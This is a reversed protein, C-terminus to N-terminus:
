IGTLSDLEGYNVSPDDVFYRDRELYFPGVKFTPLESVDVLGGWEVCEMGLDAWGYLIGDEIGTILWTLNGSFLKVIPRAGNYGANKLAKMQDKTILTMVINKVSGVENENTTTNM